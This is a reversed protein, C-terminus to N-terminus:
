SGPYTLGRYARFWDVFRPVGIDLPTSPAYGLDRRAPTVDAWTKCVDGPQMPLPEIVPTVGCAAGLLGVLREVPEPRDNGLNYV